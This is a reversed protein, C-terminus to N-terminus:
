FLFFPRYFWFVLTFSLESLFSDNTWRNSSGIGWCYQFARHEICLIVLVIFFFLFTWAHVFSYSYFFKKQFTFFFHVERDIHNFLHKLLFSKNIKTCFFYISAYMYVWIHIYRSSRSCAYLICLFVFVVFLM